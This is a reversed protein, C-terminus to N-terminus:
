VIVILDSGIILVPLVVIMFKVILVNHLVNKVPEILIMVGSNLIVNKKVTDMIYIDQINVFLVIAPMVQISVNKVPIIVLTVIEQNYTKSILWVKIIPQVHTIVNM